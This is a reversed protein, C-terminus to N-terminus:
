PPMSEQAQCIPLSNQTQPLLQGDVLESIWFAVLTSLSVLLELFVKRTNLASVVSFSSSGLPFQKLLSLHIIGDQYKMTFM